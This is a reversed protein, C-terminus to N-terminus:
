GQRTGQQYATVTASAAGALRHSDVLVPRIFLRQREARGTGYTQMRWHGRRWHPSVSSGGSGACGEM